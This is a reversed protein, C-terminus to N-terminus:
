RQQALTEIEGVLLNLDTKTKVLYKSAGLALLKEENEERNKNTFIIVPINKLAESKKLESLIEEGSKGPLMLDLVIVNPDFEMIKPIAQDGNLAVEANIKNDKLKMSIMEIILADDEVVLVTRIRKEPDYTDNLNNEM